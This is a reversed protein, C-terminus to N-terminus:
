NTVKSATMALFEYLDIAEKNLLNNETLMQKLEQETLNMQLSQYVKPLKDPTLVGLKHKDFFRFAKIAEELDKPNISLGFIEM